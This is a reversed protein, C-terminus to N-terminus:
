SGSGGQQLVPTDLDRSPLPTSRSCSAEQQTAAPLLMCLCPKSCEIGLLSARGAQPRAARMDQLLHGGEPQVPQPAHGECPACSGAALAALRWSGVDASWGCPGRLSARWSFRPRWVEGGSPASGWACGDTGSRRWSMPWRLGSGPSGQQQLVLKESNRNHAASGHRRALGPVVCSATHSGRGVHAGTCLWLPRAGPASFSSGSLAAPLGRGPSSTHQRCHATAKCSQDQVQPVGCAAAAAAAHSVSLWRAAPACSTASWAQCRQGPTRVGSRKVKLPASRQLRSHQGPRGQRSLRSYPGVADTCCSCRAGTKCPRQPGM